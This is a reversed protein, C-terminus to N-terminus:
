PGACLCDDATADSCAVFNSNLVGVTGTDIGIVCASSGCTTNCATNAGAKNTWGIGTSSTTNLLSTSFRLTGKVDLLQGPNVSGIGVNGGNLVTMAVTAGAGYVIQTPGTQRNGLLFTSPTGTGSNGYQVSGSLTSGNDYFGFGEYGGSNLNQMNIHNVASATNTLISLQSTGIPASTGIIVGAVGAANGPNLLLPTVATGAKESVIYGVGNTGLSTDYGMFIRQNLNSSNTITLNGINGTSVRNADNVDLKSLPSVTGIGLNSGNDYLFSSPGLTNQQSQYVSLYNQTGNNITGIGVGGGGGSSVQWTSDGASDTATLVYGNQASNGSLTFGTSRVTGQVDLSQGPLVSGIGVNNTSLFNVNTSDSSVVAGSNVDGEILVNPVGSGINIATTSVNTFMNNALTVHGGSNNIKIGNDAFHFLVGTLNIASTAAGEIDMVYGDQGSEVGMEGATFSIGNVTGGSAPNIYVQPASTLAPNPGEFSCNVFHQQGVTHGSTPNILLGTNFENVKIENFQNVDSNTILIGNSTGGETLPYIQIQSFHFDGSPSAATINIGAESNCSPAIVIFMHSIFVGDINNTSKTFQMGGCVNYMTIDNFSVVGSYNAGSVALAYGTTPTVGSAQIYSMHEIRVGSTKVVFGYATTSRNVLITGNTGVTFGTIANGTLAMAGDGFVHEGATSIDMESTYNYNGTPIYCPTGSNACSILAQTDDHNVAQTTATASANNSLTFTTGSINTVSTILETNGGTGANHVAIGMGVSWGTASAVSLSNTGSTITGTTTAVSGSANYDVQVNKVANTSLTGTTIRINGNVDLAKGPTSTGIGVNGVGSATGTDTISGNQLVPNSGGTKTVPITGPTLTAYTPSSLILTLLLGILIKM